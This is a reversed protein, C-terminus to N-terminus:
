RRGEQQRGLIIAMGTMWVLLLPLSVFALPSIAQILFLYGIGSVAITVATAAAAYGLWAPAVLQGRRIWALGIVAVGALVLMKLGDTRNVLALLREADGARGDPIVSTTLYLAMAGRVLSVAVAGIGVVLFLRRQGTSVRARSVMTRLIVALALGATIQTLVFQLSSAWVHGAHSALIAQGDPQVDSSTSFIALGVVWSVLYALGALGVATLRWHSRRASSVDLATFRRASDIMTDAM